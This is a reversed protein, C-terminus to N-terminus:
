KYIFFRPIFFSKVAIAAQVDVETDSPDVFLLMHNRGYTDWYKYNSTDFGTTVIAIFLCALSAETTMLSNSKLENYINIAVM